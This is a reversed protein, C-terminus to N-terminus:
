GTRTERGNHTSQTSDHSGRMVNGLAGTMYKAYKATSRIDKHGMVAQIEEMAYGQSLRQCGFSHKTGAYVHIIPTGYKEHAQLNAKDWAREIMQKSYPKGNKTFIYGKKSFINRVPDKLKLTWEIEPIIPLPKTTKNKTNPKLGKRGMVHSFVLYPPEAKWFIDDQSLGSAESPRCACYKLFTIIAKDMPHTLFEIVEEQQKETLWQIPRDQLSVRPFTPIRPISEAHFHFFAKLEGLINYIYKDGLGRKKLGTYFEDIHIKKIERIDKGTFAPLLFRKAIGKRQEYWEPSVPSNEIWIELATEFLFPKDKQWDVPDFSKDDIQSRIKELLRKCQSETELPDGTSYKNLLYKKGKWSFYIRWRGPRSQYYGGRMDLPIRYIEQEVTLEM